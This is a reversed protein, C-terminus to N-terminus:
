RRRCLDLILRELIARENSRGDKLLLDFRALALLGDRLAQQSFTKAQLLTKKALWPTTGLARAADNENLKEKLLLRAAILQRLSRGMLSLVALPSQGQDIMEKVIRLAEATRRETILDFLEYFTQEKVSAMVATLDDVRVPKGGAHLAAKELERAVAALDTGVAHILYAGAEADLEVKMERAIAQVWPRMRNEYLREFELVLGSKKALKTLKARGDIKEALLVLVTFDAPSELYDTLAEQDKAKAKHWQNLIILRHKSMMPLSNALRPVDALNDDGVQFVDTNLDAMAGLPVAATIRRRALDLQYSQPGAVLYVPKLGEALSKELAEISMSM